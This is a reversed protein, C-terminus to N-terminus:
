AALREILQGAVMKGTMGRAAFDAPVDFAEVILGDDHAAEWITSALFVVAAVGVIAVAVEFTLKLVDSMHRVRLSWHRLRLEHELEKTQLRILAAQELAVNRQEDLFADAKERSAASLAAWAASDSPPASAAGEAAAHEGEAM